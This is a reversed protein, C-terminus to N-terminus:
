KNPMVIYTKGTEPDKYAAGMNEMTESLDGNEIAQEVDTIEKLESQDIIDQVRSLDVNWFSVIAIMLGCAFVLMVDALNSLASMPDYEEAFSHRQRLGKNRLM